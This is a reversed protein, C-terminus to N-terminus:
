HSVEKGVNKGHGDLITDEVLKRIIDVKTEDKVIFEVIDYDLDLVM